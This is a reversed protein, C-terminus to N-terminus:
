SPVQKVVQKDTKLASYVWANFTSKHRGWAHGVGAKLLKRVIKESTGMGSLEDLLTSQNATKRGLLKQIHLIETEYEEALKLWGAKLSLNEYDTPVVVRTNLDWTFTMPRVESRQKRFECTATQINGEKVYDMILMEDCDQELDGVGDFLLSGDTEPRKLTHSLAIVTCGKATLQRLQDYFYKSRKDNLECFKKLTDIFLVVNSLDSSELLEKIFTLFKEPSGNFNTLLEIGREEAEPAFRKLDVASADFQVYLVTMEEASDTAAQWALTTKGANPAGCWVCYHQWPILEHWLFEANGIHALDDATTKLDKYAPSDRWSNNVTTTVPKLQTDLESM